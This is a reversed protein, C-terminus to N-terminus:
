GALFKKNQVGIGIQIYDEKKELPSMDYVVYYNRMFINGILILNYNVNKYKEAEHKFIVLYCTKDSANDDFYIGSNFFDSYQLKFPYSSIEDDLDFSISGDKDKPISRCDKDIKCVNKDRDCITEGYASEVQDIVKEYIDEPLYLYPLQPSFRVRTEDTIKTQGVKV